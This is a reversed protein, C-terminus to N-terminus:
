NRCHTMNVRMINCYKLFLNQMHIFKFVAFSNVFLELFMFM